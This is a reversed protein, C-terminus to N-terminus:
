RLGPTAGPAYSCSIHRVPYRLVHRDESLFVAGEVKAQAILLHDFPDRHPMPLTVLAQLHALGIDIVTFGAALIAERVEGVDAQLKGVRLKVVMEWLSVVSVLVETDPDEILKRGGPGLQDDDALWWLM